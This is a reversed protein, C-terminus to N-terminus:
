CEDSKVETPPTEHPLSQPDDPEVRNYTWETVIRGLDRLVQDLGEEFRLSSTSSVENHLFTIVTKVIQKLLPDMTQRLEDDVEALVSALLLRTWNSYVM